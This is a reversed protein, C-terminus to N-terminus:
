VVGWGLDHGVETFSEDLVTEGDGEEPVLGLEGTSGSADHVAPKGVGCLAGDIGLRVALVLASGHHGGESSGHGSTVRVALTGGDHGLKELLVWFELRDPVLVFNHGMGTAVLRDDMVIQAIDFEVALDEEGLVLILGQEDEIGGWSAFAMLLKLQEGDNSSLSKAGIERLRRNSGDAWRENWSSGASNTPILLRSYSLTRWRGANTGSALVRLRERKPAV